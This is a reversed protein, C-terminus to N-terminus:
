DITFLREIRKGKKESYRDLSNAVEMSWICTFDSPMSYESIFISHGESKKCFCWEYFKPYDFDVDYGKTGQYPPDCYIISNDPIKLNEYSCCELECGRMSGVQKSINAISTQIYDRGDAGVGSYSHYFLGNYSSMYGFWGLESQSYTTYDQNKYAEKAEMYMKRSIAEPYKEGDLLGKWMGILYPNVDAALRNGEVQCISNCGGCFPEVYYQEPERNNLIIPAIHKWIRRKSGM